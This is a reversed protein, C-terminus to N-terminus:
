ILIPGFLCLSPCLAEAISFLGLVLLRSYPLSIVVPSFFISVTFLFTSVPFLFISVPSLFISVPSLFISVLASLPIRFCSLLVHFGSLPIHFSSLLIHQTKQIKQSLTAEVIQYYNYVCKLECSFM